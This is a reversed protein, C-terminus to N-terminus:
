SGTGTSAPAAPSAAPAVVVNVKAGPRAMQLGNIIVRDQATIGQEIVRMDGFLRGLEVRKSVVMNSDNVTLLNHENQNPAWPRM